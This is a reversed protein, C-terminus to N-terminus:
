SMGLKRRVGVSTRLRGLARAEGAKASQNIIGPLESTKIYKDNDMQM